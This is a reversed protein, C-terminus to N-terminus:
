LKEIYGIAQNKDGDMVVTLASGPFTRDVQFLCIVKELREPIKLFIKISNHKEFISEDLINNDKEPYLPLYKIQAEVLDQFFHTGFSLEPVYDQKKKAIEVLLSTNNIDCYGVHVGLKIDGRSGWRGPGMLIFERRPLIQNLEGVIKGVEVLDGYSELKSYEDPNVYVIFKIDKVKGSTIYKNATFIIKDKSINEPITISKPGVSQSQPRCQLLYLKHIDGDCAFEVDVPFGLEDQLINLIDKIQHIFPGNKLLRSFSVVPVDQSINIMNGTPTYIERDKYISIIQNLAPYNYGVERLLKEFSVTEFRRSILNIVDINKQSYRLIDEPEVNVRLGPMGPCILVPYDNDVRDVARTGLGAVIRAIGHERKIRPSWRFENHSFAVGAFAPFYYKGVKRGVVEQILIAMEENFDLLGRERRYEIPDPGFVSAYVELIADILSELREKKTGQNAVFLSKYKGAFSADFSDELLSSSRVILPTDGFDDLAYSLGKVIEPPMASNKFIQELYAYEQKIEISKRYKINPMEELANFHLFSIIGDSTLFWTKPICLNRISVNNKKAKNLINKARLLGATKGGLKGNGRRPGITYTLIDSFDSVKIFRKTTNIYDLDESFFRRILAVRIGIDEEKSLSKYSDKMNSFKHFAETIEELSVDRKEATMTLFSAKEHRLWLKIMKNIRESSLEQKAIQFIEEIIQDLLNTEIRPIPKNDSRAQDESLQNSNSELKLMLEEVRKVNCKHLYHMMKRGLRNILVPDTYQLLDVIVEWEQKDEM